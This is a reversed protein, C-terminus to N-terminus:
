RDDGNVADALKLGTRLGTHRALRAYPNVFANERPTAYTAGNRPRSLALFDVDILPEGTEQPLWALQMRVDGADVGALRRNVQEVVARVFSRRFGEPDVSRTQMPLVGQWILANPQPRVLIGQPEDSRSASEVSSAMRPQLGGGFQGEGALQRLERPDRTHCSTCWLSDTLHGLAGVPDAAHRFSTSVLHGAIFPPQTSESMKLYRYVDDEGTFGFGIMFAQNVDATQGGAVSVGAPPHGYDLYIRYVGFTRRGAAATPSTPFGELSLNDRALVVRSATFRRGDHFVVRHRDRDGTDITAIRASEFIMGQKRVIRDALHMAVLGSGGHVVSSNMLGYLLYALAAGSGPSTIEHGLALPLCTLACRLRADQFGFGDLVQRLTRNAFGAQLRSAGDNGTRQGSFYGNVGAHLERGARLLRTLRRGDARGFQDRTREASRYFLFPERDDFLVAFPIEPFLLRLVDRGNVAPDDATIPDNLFWGGSLDYRHATLFSETLLEGGVKMTPELLAVRQGSGALTAALSLGDANGGIVVTDFDSRM